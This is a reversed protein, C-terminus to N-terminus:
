AHSRLHAVARAAIAELPLILSAADLGAAAKPMGYVASTAEDQAITLWGVRKLSALGAAGDSGMGTLLVAVGPPLDSAALSEFLQDISPRFLADAPHTDLRLFPGPGVLLHAADGAVFVTGPALRDGQRALAVKLRTQGALWRV